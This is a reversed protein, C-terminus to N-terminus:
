YGIPVHTCVYWGCWHQIEGVGAWVLHQVWLQCRKIFAFSSHEGLFM